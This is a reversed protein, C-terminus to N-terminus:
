REGESGSSPFHIWRELESEGTRALPILASLEVGYNVYSIGAPVADGAFSSPAIRPVAGGVPVCRVMEIRYCAPYLNADALSLGITALRQAALARDDARDLFDTAVSVVSAGAEDAVLHVLVLALPRGPPALQQVGHIEVHRASAGLAKVELACGPLLIDHPEGEPGRWSHAEIPRDRFAIGLVSLEAILALQAQPSLVRKGRTAFLARWREIIRLASDAPTEADVARAIDLVVEDFLDFLDARLCHLDLYTATVRDFVYSVRRLQLAGVLGEPADLSDRDSVPILLHRGSSADVGIRAGVGSAMVFVSSTLPADRSNPGIVAWRNALDDRDM